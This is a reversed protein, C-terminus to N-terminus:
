LNKQLSNYKMTCDIWERYDSIKTFYSMKQGNTTTKYSSVVGYAKGNECVLPGGSDGEAPRKEGESCYSNHEECSESSILTLNVERLVVSMHRTQDHRGWGPVICSEPAPDKHDALTIPRVNSSLTAKSSLKILMLDNRFEAPDYDKYPFLKVASITQINEKKKFNHLGLLVNPHRAECYAATMVFDENLLFGGCYKTEGNPMMRELLVMYPRSHPVAERGGYIAETHVTMALLLIVLECHIHM